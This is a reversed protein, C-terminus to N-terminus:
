MFAGFLAHFDIFGNVTAPHKWHVRKRQFLSTGMFLCARHEMGGFIRSKIHQSLLRGKKWHLKTKGHVRAPHTSLDRFGRKSGHSLPSHRSVCGTEYILQMSFEALPLAMHATKLKEAGM